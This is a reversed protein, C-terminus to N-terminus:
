AHRPRKNREQESRTSWKCNSKCYNGNVDVRDLTKGEPRDGMDELFCSFDNWRTDFTIGGNGHFM